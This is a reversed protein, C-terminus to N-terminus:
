RFNLSTPLAPVVGCLGQERKQRERIDEKPAIQDGDHAQKLKQLERELEANEKMLHEVQGEFSKKRERVM